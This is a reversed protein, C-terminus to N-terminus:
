GLGLISKFDVQLPLQENAYFCSQFTPFGLPNWKAHAFQSETRWSALGFSPVNKYWENRSPRTAEKPQHKMKVAKDLVNNDICMIIEWVSLM